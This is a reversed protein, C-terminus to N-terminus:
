KYQPPLVHDPFESEWPCKVTIQILKKKEEDSLYKREEPDMNKGEETWLGEIIYKDGASKEPCELIADLYGMRKLDATDETGNANFELNREIMYRQVAFYIQEMNKVCQETKEKSELDFLQPLALVFIMALFSIISIVKYISFGRSDSIM